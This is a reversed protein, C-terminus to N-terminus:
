WDGGYLNNYESNLGDGDMGASINMFKKYNGKQKEYNGVFWNLWSQYEQAKDSVSISVGGASYNLRNRSQLIGAMILFQIASGDILFKLSPYNALTLQTVPATQNYDDVALIIALEYQKPSLEKKRLLRNLKEHDQMYISLFNIAKEKRRQILQELETKAM